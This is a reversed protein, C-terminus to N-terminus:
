SAHAVKLLTKMILEIDFRFSSRGVYQKALSIKDPLICRVYADSPDEFRGLVECENHYKLSALDTLGPRIRLIVQYDQEFLKVFEPMEPRPGVVSMDGKLVNVLQPLEDIKLRRLIAGVPTVRPDHGCTILGGKSSADVVMTRFKYMVFPRFDKGMRQQCFLVPSGSTVRIAVAALAFLPSLVILGLSSAIIDFARKM